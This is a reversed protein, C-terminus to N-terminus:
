FLYEETSKETQTESKLLQKITTTDWIVVAQNPGKHQSVLSCMGTMVSLDTIHVGRPYPNTM